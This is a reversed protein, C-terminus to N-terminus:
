PSVVLKASQTGQPTSATVFYNGAREDLRINAPKNTEISYEAVKEGLLNTITLQAQENISTTVVVTVNGHAPNPYLLLNEACYNINNVGAASTVFRVRCNDYETIYLNGANDVTVGAPGYLEALAALGGDGSYGPTGIGAYTSIIGFSNVKRM